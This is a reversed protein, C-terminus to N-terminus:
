SWRRTMELGSILSFSVKTFCVKCDMQFFLAIGKFKSGRCFAKEGWCGNVACPSNIFEVLSQLKDLSLLAFQPPPRAKDGTATSQQTGRMDEPEMDEPEQPNTQEQVDEEDEPEEPLNEHEQSHEQVDQKSQQDGELNGELEDESTCDSGWLEGDSSCTSTDTDSSNNPERLDSFELNRFINNKRQSRRTPKFSLLEEVYRPVCIGQERAGEMLRDSTDRSFKWNVRMKQQQEQVEKRVNERTSYIKSLETRPKPSRQSHVNLKPLSINHGEDSKRRSLNSKKRPM